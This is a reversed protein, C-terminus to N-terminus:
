GRRRKRKPFMSHWALYGGGAVAFLWVAYMPTSALFLSADSPGTPSQSNDPTTATSQTATSTSSDNSGDSSTDGLSGITIVRQM